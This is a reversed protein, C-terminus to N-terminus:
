SRAGAAKPAAPPTTTPNRKAGKKGAGAAAFHARIVSSDACWCDYDIRGGTDLRLRLTELMKAFTGDDRWARFRNDAAQWPGFRGPLDRWPSGTHL